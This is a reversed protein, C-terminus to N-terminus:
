AEAGQQQWRRLWIQDSCVRDGAMQGSSQQGELRVESGEGWWPCVLECRWTRDSVHGVRPGSGEDPECREMTWMGLESESM